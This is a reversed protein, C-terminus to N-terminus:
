LFFQFSSNKKTLMDSFASLMIVSLLVFLTLGYLEYVAVKTM